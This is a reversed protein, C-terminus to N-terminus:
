SIIKGNEIILTQKTVTETEFDVDTVVEITGTFGSTLDQFSGNKYIYLNNSHYSLLGNEKTVNGASNDIITMTNIKIPKFETINYNPSGTHLNSFINCGSTSNEFSLTHNSYPTGLRMYTRQGFLEFNFVSFTNQSLQQLTNINNPHTEGITIGQGLSTKINYLFQNNQQFILGGTNGLLTFVGSDILIKKYSGGTYINLENNHYSLTGNIADDTANNFSGVTLGLVEIIAGRQSNSYNTLTAKQGGITQPSKVIQFFGDEESKIFLVPFNNNSIRFNSTEFFSFDNDNHIFGVGRGILPTEDILVDKVKINADKFNLSGRDGLLNIEGTMNLVGDHFNLNDENDNGIQFTKTIDNSAIKLKKGTIDFYTDDSGIFGGDVRIDIIGDKFEFYRGSAKDGIITNTTNIGDISAIQLIQYFQITQTTSIDTLGTNFLDREIIRVVTSTDSSTIIEIGECLLFENNIKIIFKKGSYMLLINYTNRDGQIDTIQLDIFGDRINNAVKARYNSLDIELATVLGLRTELSLVRDSVNIRPEDALGEAGLHNYTPLTVPLYSVKNSLQLNEGIVNYENLTVAKFKTNTTGDCEVSKSIIIYKKNNVGLRVKDTLTIVDLVQLDFRSPTEFEIYRKNSFTDTGKYGNKLYDVAKEMDEVNLFRGDVNYERESYIDVSEEDESEINIIEELVPNGKIYFENIMVTNTYDWKIFEYQSNDLGIPYQKDLVIFHIFDDSIFKSTIVWTTDKLKLYLDRREPVTKNTDRLRLTDGVNYNDINDVQLTRFITNIPTHNSEGVKALKNKFILKFGDDTRDIGVEVDANDYTEYTIYQSEGGGSYSIRNSQLFIPKTAGYRINYPLNNHIGYIDEIEEIIGSFEKNDVQPVGFECEYVLEQQPALPIRLNNTKENDFNLAFVTPLETAGYYLTFNRVNTYGEDILYSIKGLNILSMDTDFGALITIQGNKNVSTARCYFEDGTIDDKLMLYSKPSVNVYKVNTGLDVLNEKFVDGDIIRLTVNQSYKFNVYKLQGDKIFDERNFLSKRVKYESNIKNIIIKNDENIAEINTFYKSSITKASTINNKNVDSFIILNNNEDFAIRVMLSQCLAILFESYTEYENTSLYEIEFYNEDLTNNAFKIREINMNLVQALVLKINVKKYIRNLELRKDWYQSLRDKLEIVYEFADQSYGRYINGVFDCLMEGFTGNFILVYGSKAINYEKVESQRDYKAIDDEIKIMGNSLTPAFLASQTSESTNNFEWYTVSKIPTVDKVDSLGLHVSPKTGLMGREVTFITDGVTFTTSVVKVIENNVALYGEYGVFNGPVVLFTETESAIIRLRSDVNIGLNCNSLMILSNNQQQREEQMQNLSPYNTLDRM